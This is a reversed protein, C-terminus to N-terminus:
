EFARIEHGFFNLHTSCGYGTVRGSEDISWVMVDERSYAKGLVTFHLYGVSGKIYKDFPSRRLDYKLRFTEIEATTKLNRAKRLIRAELRLFWFWIFFLGAVVAVAGIRKRYISM